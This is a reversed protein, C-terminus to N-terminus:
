AFRIYHVMESKSGLDWSEMWRVCCFRGNIVSCHWYIEIGMFWANAFAAYAAELFGQFYVMSKSLIM